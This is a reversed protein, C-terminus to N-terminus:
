FFRRLHTNVMWSLRDSDSRGELTMLRHVDPDQACIQVISDISASVRERISEDEKLTGAINLREVSAFMHDM